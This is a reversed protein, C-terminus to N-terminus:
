ASPVDVAPTTPTVTPAPLAGTLADAHTKVDAQLAQLAADNSAAQLAVAQAIVGPTGQIFAVAQDILTDEAAVAAKFDDIAPM